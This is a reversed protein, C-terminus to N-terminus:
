IMAFDILCQITRKALRVALSNFHFFHTLLEMLIFCGIWRLGYLFIQLKSYNTQPLELQSAFANFSIVPGAIYLPPYFLYSLYFETSYSRMALSKEQRKLYCDGGSQCAECSKNHKEWDVTSSQSSCAWHYDIGFSIMRLMVFNFCIHWRQAGRYNDLVAVTKGISSFSYGEYLRNSVLFFLNYFWLIMPCVPSGAM